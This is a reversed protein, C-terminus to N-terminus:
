KQKSKYDFFSSFVAKLSEHQYKSREMKPTNFKKFFYM